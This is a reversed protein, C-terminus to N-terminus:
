STVYGLALVRPIRVGDKEEAVERLDRLEFGAGAFVQLYDSLPRPYWTLEVRGWLSLKRRPTRDFYDGLLGYKADPTGGLQRAYHFAAHFPHDVVVVLQGNPTLARRAERAFTDIAPVYQLVMKCLVVDIEGTGIPWAATADAQVCHLNGLAAYKGRCLEVFAPSFDAAVVRRATRALEAAVYGSGCGFDLVRRGALDGLMELVVPRLRERNLADGCEGMNQDYWAASGDWEQRTAMSM